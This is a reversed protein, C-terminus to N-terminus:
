DGTGTESVPALSPATLRPLLLSTAAAWGQGDSCGVSCPSGEPFPHGKRMQGGQETQPTLPPTHLNFRDRQAPLQLCSLSQCFSQPPVVRGGRTSGGDSGKKGPGHAPNIFIIKIIFIILYSSLFFNHLDAMLLPASPFSFRIFPLRSGAPDRM